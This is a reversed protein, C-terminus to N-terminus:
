NTAETEIPLTATAKKRARAKGRWVFVSKSNEPCSVRLEIKNDHCHNRIANAAKVADKATDYDEVVVRPLGDEGNAAKQAAEIVPQYKGILVAKPFAKTQDIMRM